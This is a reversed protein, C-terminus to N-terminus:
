FQRVVRAPHGLSVTRPPVDKLVVSGAGIVADDGIHVGRLVIVRAGLWVRDGLVVPDALPRAKRDEIGHYDSDNIISYQGIYCDNRIQISTTAGISVGYNISCRQGIALKARPGAALEIPVITGFLRTREGIILEGYATCRVKGYVRVTQAVKGQRGLQRRANLVARISGLRSLSWRQRDARAPREATRDSNASGRSRELLEAIM